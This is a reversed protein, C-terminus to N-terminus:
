SSPAVAEWRVSMEGRRWQRPGGLVPWGAERLAAVSALWRQRTGYAALPAHAAWAADAEALFRHVPEGPVHRHILAKPLRAAVDSPREFSGLRLALTLSAPGDRRLDVWTARRGDESCTGEVLVGDEALGACLLAWVAPVDEERYQRLVNFARVVTPPRPVPLEFGGVAWSLGPVGGARERARAVRAPDIELGTLELAPNVARLRTFMEVATVPEAGFGLDVALPRDTRRLLAGHVDTLWRDVRRMRQAATTGRTIHGQPGRVRGPTTSASLRRAKEVM